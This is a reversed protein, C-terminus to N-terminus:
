DSKADQDEILCATNSEHFLNKLRFANLHMQIGLTDIASRMALINRYAHTAFLVRGFGNTRM